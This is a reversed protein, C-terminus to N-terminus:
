GGSLDSELLYTSVFCVVKEVLYHNKRNVTDDRKRVFPSNKSNSSRSLISMYLPKMPKSLM